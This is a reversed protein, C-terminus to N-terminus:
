ESGQQAAALAAAEEAELRQVIECLSTFDPGPESISALAARAEALQEQRTNATAPTRHNEDSEGAPAALRQLLQRAVQKADAPTGMREGRAARALRARHREEIREYATKM